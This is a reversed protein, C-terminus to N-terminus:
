KFWDCFQRFINLLISYFSYEKKKKVIYMKNQPLEKILNISNETVGLLLKVNNVYLICIYQTPSLYIKDVICITDSSSKKRFFFKFKTILLFLIYLLLFCYIYKRGLSIEQNYQNWIKDKIDFTDIFQIYSYLEM